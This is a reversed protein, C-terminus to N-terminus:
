FRKAFDEDVGLMYRALEDGLDKMQAAAIRCEKKGPRRVNEVEVTAALADYDARVELRCPVGGRVTLTGRLPQGFDNKAEVKMEFDAKISKLFDTFRPIDDRSLRLALPPQPGVTYRFAISALYDKGQISRPRADCWANALSVTPVAGLFQLQYAGSSEPGVGNVEKAFEALYRFAARMEQDLALLAAARAAAPALRPGLTAAQKRLADLAGARRAPAAPEPAAPAAAREAEARRRDEQAQRAAREAEAAKKVEAQEEDFRQSFADLDGLLDGAGAAAVKVTKEYASATAPDGSVARLAQAMEAARAYRGDAKKALARALIVDYAAPIGPDLQRVPAHPESAIRHLVPLPSTDTPRQFPNRGTLMEYLMVGLSFVDSRGDVPMGLAQEPSMYRPSGLAMGTQTMTSTPVYAVGFDTLKCRGDPAVMVNAPKVDRHVISYRQAHDLGEAVQAAIDAITAFPPRGDRLLDQLSRGELLEMAIYALGDHEGVDYITVINPHNLRGASRAERLFRERVEGALEAPLDSLLTKIAVEREILPDIARYVAGMAGRGLEGIIRYRGFAREV